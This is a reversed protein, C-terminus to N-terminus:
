SESDARVEEIKVGFMEAYLAENVIARTLLLPETGESNTAGPVPIVRPLPGLHAELMAWFDVEEPWRNLQETFNTM